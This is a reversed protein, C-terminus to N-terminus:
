AKQETKTSELDLFFQAFLFANDGEAIFVYGEDTQELRPASHTHCEAEVAAIRRLAKEIAPDSGPLLIKYANNDKWVHIHRGILPQILKKRDTRNLVCGTRALLWGLTAKAATDDDHNHGCVREALRGLVNDPTDGLTNVDSLFTGLEHRQVLLDTLQRELELYRHEAIAHLSDDNGNDLEHMMASIDSLSFGLRQARQIFLLTKSTDKTYLRYGAATRGSPKILGQEEYYRLTSRSVGTNNALQGITLQTM